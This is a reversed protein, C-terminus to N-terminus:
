PNYNDFINNFIIKLEKKDIENINIDKDLSSNIKYQKIIKIIKEIDDININKNNYIQIFKDENNFLYNIFIEFLLYCTDLNNVNNFLKQYTLKTKYNNLGISFKSLIKSYIIETEKLYQYNDLNNLNRSINVCTIYGIYETAEYVHDKYLKGELLDGMMLAEYNKELNELKQHETNKFNAYNTLLNEHIIQNIFISFENFINIIEENPLKNTIIKLCSDFLNTHINKKGLNNLFYEINVNNNKSYYELLCILKRIDLQSYDILKFITDDSMKVKEKKCIDIVLEYLESKKPKTFKIVECEKKLDNIKKDFDENSICIIPNNYQLLKKKNKRLGKNPNIFSILEGMGGKDGSSMGDVEDMIIGIHKNIGMLSTISIKGIINKFNEKVLKQNRIDSANFEVIEYNFAELLIKALTTKGIGPSGVLLLGPPTKDKKSIYNKLWTKARNIALKNGILNDLGKPSYKDVWLYSYKKNPNSTNDIYSNDIDGKLSKVICKKCEKLITIENCNICNNSQINKYDM